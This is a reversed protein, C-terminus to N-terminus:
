CWVGFFDPEACDISCLAVRVFRDSTLGMSSTHLLIQNNM